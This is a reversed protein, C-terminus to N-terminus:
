HLLPQGGDSSGDDCEMLWIMQAPVRRVEDFTARLADLGNTDALECKLTRSGDTDVTYIRCGAMPEGGSHRAGAIKPSAIHQM